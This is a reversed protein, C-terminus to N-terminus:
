MKFTDAGAPIGERADVEIWSQPIMYTNLNILSTRISAVASKTKEDLSSLASLALIRSNVEARSMKSIDRLLLDAPVGSALLSLDFRKLDEKHFKAFNNKVNTYYRLRLVFEPDIRDVMGMLGLEKEFCFDMGMVVSYGKGVVGNYADLPPNACSPDTADAYCKIAAAHTMYTESSCLKNADSILLSGHNSVYTNFDISMAFNTTTTYQTNKFFVKLAVLDNATAIAADENLLMQELLSSSERREGSPGIQDFGAILHANPFMKPWRNKVAGISMSYCGWYLVTKVSRLSARGEFAKILSAHDIAPFYGSFREAGAHGSEIFATLTRGEQDMKDLYATIVDVGFPIKAIVATEEDLSKTYMEVNRNICADDSSCAAINKSIKNRYVVGASLYNRIELSVQPFVVLREGRKDAAGQAATVEKESLNFDIFLIDANSINSFLFTMTIFVFFLKSIM